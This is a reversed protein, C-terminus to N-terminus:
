MERLPHQQRDRERRARQRELQVERNRQHYDRSRQRDREPDAAHRARQRANEQERNAQHYRRVREAECSKCRSNRGDGAKNDISFSELPKVQGCPGTCRKM